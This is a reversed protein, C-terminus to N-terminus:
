WQAWSVGALNLSVVVCLVLLIAGCANGAVNVFRNTTIPLQAGPRVLMLGLLFGVLFGGAHGAAMNSADPGQLWEGIAGTFTWLLLGIGLFPPLSRTRLWAAVVFGNLGFLGGSLGVAPKALPGLLVFSSAAWACVCLVMPLVARPSIGRVWRAAFLLWILNVLLHGANGHVVPATFLRWWQRDIFLGQFGVALKVTRLAIGNGDISRLGYDQCARVILLGIMLLETWVGANLRSWANFHQWHKASLLYSPSKRFARVLQWLCFIVISSSCSLDFLDGILSKTLGAGENGMLTSFDYGAFM